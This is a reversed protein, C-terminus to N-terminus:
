PIAVNGSFELEMVFEVEHRMPIGNAGILPIQPKQKRESDIAGVNVRVLDFGRKQYFGFANINDNTTVVQIKRWGSVVAAQKVKEILASGIGRGERKSNLSTIECVGGRILYTILGIIEHGGEDFLVFGDVKTMDVAEGRILMETSLWERIIFDTVPARTAPTVPVIERKTNGKAMQEFLGPLIDPYTLKDPCTKCTMVEFMESDSPQGLERVDAFFVQGNSFEAPTYVSCDFAPRINFDAAGTKERLERKAAEIATEGPEIYGGATEWTDCGCGRSYLWQGKYRAFIVVFRYYKLFGADFTRTETKTRKYFTTSWIGYGCRTYFRRVADADMTASNIMINTIGNKEASAEVLSLLREGIKQNRYGSEVYLDNIRLYIAGASFINYENDKIIEATTYGVATDQDFAIYFYDNQYSLIAEHTDPVVGFTIRELTWEHQLGLVAAAYKPSFLKYTIDM